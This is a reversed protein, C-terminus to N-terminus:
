RVLYRLAREYRPWKGIFEGDARSLPRMAVLFCTGFSIMLSAEIILFLGSEPFPLAYTTLASASYALIVKLSGTAPTKVPLIRKCAGLEAASILIAAIGSAAAVGVIGFVKFLIADLALNIAVAASRLGLVTRARGALFLLSQNAGGGLVRALILCACLAVTATSAATFDPGALLRLVASPNVICYILPPLSLISSVLVAVRWAIATSDGNGAAFVRGLAVYSMTGVGQLLFSSALLSVTFAVSYLGTQAATAGVVGMVLVDSNKGIGVSLLGNAWFSAVDRKHVAHSRPIRNLPRSLSVAYGIDVLLQLAVMTVVAHEVTLSDMAHLLGFIGAVSLSWTGDLLASSVAKSRSAQIAGGLTALGNAGAYAIAAGFAVPSSHWPGFIGFSIVAAALCMLAVACLARIRLTARYLSRASVSDGGSLPGRALVLDELGLSTLAQLIVALALLGAYNGLGSPGVSRALVATAALAGLQQVVRSSQLAVASSIM